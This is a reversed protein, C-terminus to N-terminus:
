DSLEDASRLKRYEDKANIVSQLIDIKSPCVYDCLGCEICKYPRFRFSEEIENVKVYKWILFPYIDVPCVQDCYNCQVCPRVGGHLNTELKKTFLPILEAVTFKTYSDAAFGPRMFSFLERTAHERIVSIESDSPLISTDLSQLGEGLLPNGRIIRWPINLDSKLLQKKIEELTTGIRVRYWGPESVGPGAIMLIMDVLPRGQTMVEAIHVVDSFHMILISDDSGGDTSVLRRNVTDRSLLEPHEQPYRDSMINIKAHEKIEPADFYKRNRNNIAIVTEAEPFLANVTKLGHSFIVSNGIIDPMWSQNLPSNHVANIIIYKIKDCDSVSTFQNSCLLSCGTECFIDFVESRELHWPNEKHGNLPNINSSGDSAIIIRDSNVKSVTGNVPSILSVKSDNNSKIIRDGARLTDGERVAFVFTDSFIDSLPIDIKEPVPMEHLVPKAAGEFNKFKYGGQFKTKTFIGM